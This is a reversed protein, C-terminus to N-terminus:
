LNDATASLPVHSRRASWVRGAADPEGCHALIANRVQERLRVTAAFDTGDPAIAPLGTVTITGREVIWDGDRLAVRVGRLAIPAVAYGTMCACRFAGLHFARLGAARVFTGEPFFLLRDGANALEILRAEDALSGAYVGREVFRGGLARLLPGALPRMALERKAVFNVPCPLVAALVVVDLYSTHNSVVVTRSTAVAALNGDVVVQVGTARLFLRCARALWQWNRASDRRFAVGAFVGVALMAFLSWCWAGRAYRRMQRSARRLAARTGSRLLAALQQGLPRPALATGGREFRELTEAHRIKGGPTKVVSHPAVLAVQEAAAGYHTLAASMIQAKLRARAADDDLATEAIIVVRETGSRVDPAACVAVGGRVIGPMKGIADELEYPFFHRGGRIIMDKVRGTVFLEGDALYGLDGTDLWGHDFLQDTQARNRWYGRTASTGRFEIRGVQRPPAERGDNGVVRVETGELPFGCGVAEIVDDGNLAAIATGSAVFPERVVRDVQLGRAPPPFTLALANEALGYVPTIARADLGYPAFRVAFARMTNPNVPEAGCFAFRLSSLDIGQLADKELRQACREYAFNPAATVTGRYRGIARLWSAPRALFALPSMVVLTLGFYLPALWAGILGMDHYLPLWSVVTDQACVDIRAGMARVNALLNAHSLMVGKPAGTSGSTYQLLAIDDTHAPLRAEMPLRAIRQPSVVHRLTAVELRLLRAVLAAQEPAILAKVGANTLIATNRRIHEELERRHAPPYIPVPIANCLLIACFCAFYDAGTPLMLAVTDGPDIGLARLGGALRLAQRYLEGFSLSTESGADDLILLHRREAHWNAHWRLVEPWTLATEPVSGEPSSAPAEAKSLAHDPGLNGAQRDLADLVDAPTLASAFADVPLRTDFAQEVRALLEARALSDFGLERDLRTQLTIAGHAPERGSAERALARVIDLLQSAREACALNDSATQPANM